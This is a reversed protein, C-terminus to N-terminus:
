PRKRATTEIADDLRRALRAPVGVYVADPETDRTVVSGAGIVGGAGISVGGLIVVRAGLWAGDGVRIPSATLGHARRSAPGIEHSAAALVVGVGIVVDDGIVIEASGPDFVGGRNIFVRDGILIRGTGWFQNPHVQADHGLRMRARRYAALRLRQPVLDSGGIINRLVHKVASRSDMTVVTSVIKLLRASVTEHSLRSPTPGAPHLPWRGFPLVSCLAGGPGAVSM